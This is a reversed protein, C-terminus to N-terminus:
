ACSIRGRAVVHLGDEPKFRLLRLTSRFVVGKIQATADKLTFYFHGSNWVRGNSIEGEVWVDTFADEVLGRLRASPASVSVARAASTM